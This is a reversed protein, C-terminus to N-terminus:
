RGSPFVLLHFNSVPNSLRIAPEQILHQV